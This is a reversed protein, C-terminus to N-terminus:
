PGALQQALAQGREGLQAQEAKLAPSCSPFRARGAGYGTNFSNALRAQLGQDSAEVDILQNMRNRWYQDNPGRCAQRLAHSEGLVYALEVLNQRAAPTRDQAFAPGSLPAIVLAFIAASIPVFLSAKM